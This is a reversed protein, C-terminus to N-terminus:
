RRAGADAQGVLMWLAFALVGFVLACRRQGLSLWRAFERRLPHQEGTLPLSRRTTWALLGVPHPLPTRALEDRRRGAPGARREDQMPVVSFREMKADELTDMMDVMPEYRAERHIKVLVILDPNPAAREGAFTPTLDRGPSRARRRGQRAQCFM